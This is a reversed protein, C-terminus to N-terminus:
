TIRKAILNQFSPAKLSPDLKRQRVATVTGLVYLACLCWARVGELVHDALKAGARRLEREKESTTEEPGDSGSSARGDMIRAYEEDIRKEESTYLRM